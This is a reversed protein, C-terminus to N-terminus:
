ARSVAPTSPDEFFMALAEDYVAVAEGRARQAMLRVLATVSRINTDACVREM